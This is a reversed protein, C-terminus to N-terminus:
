RARARCRPGAARTSPWRCRTTRGRAPRCRGRCCVRHRSASDPRRIPACRAPRPPSPGRSCSTPRHARTAAANRPTPRARTCPPSSAASRARDHHDGVALQLLTRNGLARFQANRLQRQDRRRLGVRAGDGFERPQQDRSRVRHEDGIARRAGLGAHRSQDLERLESCAATTLVSGFVAGGIPAPRIFKGDRWGSLWVNRLAATMASASTM